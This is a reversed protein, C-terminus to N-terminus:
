AMEDPHGPKGKGASSNTYKCTHCRGGSAPPGLESSVQGPAKGTLHNNNPKQECNKTRLPFPREEDRRRCNPERLARFPDLTRLALLRLKAGHRGLPAQTEAAGQRRLVRLSSSSRSPSAAEFSRRRADPSLDYSPPECPNPRMKAGCVQLSRSRRRRCCRRGGLRGMCSRSNPPTPFSDTM